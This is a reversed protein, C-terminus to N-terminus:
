AGALVLRAFREPAELIPNHGAGELPTVRAEPMLAGAREAIAMFKHDEAGVVLQVRARVASLEPWMNPMVGLGLSRLSAAIGDALHSLRVERQAELVQPPLSRQSAFLPLEEWKGVLADIGETEALRALAEDQEARTSREAESELGPNVGVLTANRVLSPHRVLLRLGVRAGMSYGILHVDGSRERDILAAIRDVEEDFPVKAKEPPVAGHGYLTPRLVHASSPFHRLVGDWSSPRGLFGHLLVWTM